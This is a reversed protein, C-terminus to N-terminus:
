CIEYKNVRGKYRNRYQAIEILVSELQYMPVTRFQHIKSPVSKYM